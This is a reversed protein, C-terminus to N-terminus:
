CLIYRNKGKREKKEPKERNMTHKIHTPDNPDCVIYVHTDNMVLIDYM